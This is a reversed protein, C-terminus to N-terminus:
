KPQEPPALTTTPEAAEDGSFQRRRSRKGKEQSGDMKQAPKAEHHCCHVWLTGIIQMFVTTTEHARIKIDIIPALILLNTENVLWDRPPRVKSASERPCRDRLTQKACLDENTRSPKVHGM